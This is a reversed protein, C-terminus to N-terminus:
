ALTAGLLVVNMIDPTLIIGTLQHALVMLERVGAAKGPGGPQRNPNIDARRMETLLHDPDSGYRQQPSIPDFNTIIESNVAYVFRSSAYPHNLVVIATTNQALRALVDSSDATWGNVQFIVTWDGFDGAVIKDPSLDGDMLQELTQPRVTKQDAGIRLLATSPDTGKVFTLCWIDGLDWGDVLWSTDGSM